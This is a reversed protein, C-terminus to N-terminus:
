YPTSLRWPLLSTLKQTAERPLVRFGPRLETKASPKEKVPSLLICHHPTTDGGLGEDRSFYCTSIFAPGGHGPPRTIILPASTENHLESTYPALITPLDQHLPVWVFM